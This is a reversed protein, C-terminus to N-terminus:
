RASHLRHPHSDHRTCQSNQDSTAGSRGCDGAGCDPAGAGLVATVMGSSTGSGARRSSVPPSGNEMPAEVTTWTADPSAATVRVARSRSPTSGGPSPIRAQERSRRRAAGGALRISIPTSGARGPARRAFAVLEIISGCRRASVARVAAPVRRRRESSGDTAEPVRGLVFRQQEALRARHRQRREADAVRRAVGPAARHEVDRAVEERHVFDLPEDIQERQVLHVPQVEVQRVVLAPPNRDPLPLVQRQLAPPGLDAARGAPEVRLGCYVSRTAYAASRKM